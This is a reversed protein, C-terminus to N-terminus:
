SRRLKAEEAARRREDAVLAVLEFWAPLWELTFRSRQVPAEADAWDEPWAYQLARVRAHRYAKLDVVNDTGYRAM